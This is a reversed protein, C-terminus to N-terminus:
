PATRARRAGVLEMVARGGDLPPIPLLNFLGIQVGLLAVLRLATVTSAGTDHDAVEILLFATGAALLNSFPGALTMAISRCVPLEAAGGALGLMPTVSIQADLGSWAFVAAHALEHILVHFLMVALVVGVLRVRDPGVLAPDVRDSIWVATLWGGIWCLIWFRDVPFRVTLRGWARLRGEKSEVVVGRVASPQVRSSSPKVRTM